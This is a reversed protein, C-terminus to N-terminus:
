RRSGRPRAALAAFVAVIFFLVAAVVEGASILRCDANVTFTSGFFDIPGCVTTPGGHPTGNYAIVSAVTLAMFMIAFVFAM